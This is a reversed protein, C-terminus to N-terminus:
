KAFAEGYIAALATSYVASFGCVMVQGDNAAVLYRGEPRFAVAGLLAQMNESPATVVVRDTRDGAYWTDVDLSVEDGEISDVTAAFAVDAGSLTEANPVLCKAQATAPAGLTTVTTPQTRAVQPRQSRDSDLLAYGGVGAVLVAAAAALLWSWRRAGPATPEHENMTVETLESLWHEAAEPARDAPDAAKLRALLEDDNV